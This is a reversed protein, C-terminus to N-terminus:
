GPVALSAQPVPLQTSQVFEPAPWRQTLPAHPQLELLSQGFAAAQLGAVWRQELAQLADDEQWLLQQSGTSPQRAKASLEQPVPLPEQVFQVNLLLLLIQALAPTHPQLPSPSQALLSIHLPPLQMGFQLSVRGQAFPQQSVV